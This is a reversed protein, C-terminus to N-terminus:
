VSLAVRWVSIGTVTVAACTTLIALALIYQHIRSTNRKM